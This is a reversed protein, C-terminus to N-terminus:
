EGRPAPPARGRAPDLGFGTECLEKLRQVFRAAPAGDIVDHDFLVTVSLYERIEIADGVVGPKRAVSGLAIILPHIGIPIAWGYDGSKGASGISTVVVTGMTKKAFFPDRALRRWLVLYRLFGPMMAFMRAARGNGGGGLRVEGRDLPAERAARLEDHIARVSKENARRVVYPMPLTDAHRGGNPGVTRELVVSIDVDDFLILKRRGKRAAHVPKHDSVARGICTTVWGTFSIREGTEERLGRLRRRSDTVDIEFFLPVHHRKIGLGLTDVTPNRFSPFEREEYTGIDNM